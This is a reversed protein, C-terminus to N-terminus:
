GQEEHYKQLLPQTEIFRENLIDDISPRAQPDITLIHDLLGVLERSYNRPM